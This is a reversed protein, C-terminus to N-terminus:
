KKIKTLDLFGIRNGFPDSVIACYGVAIEFPAEISRCGFSILRSYAEHANEVLFDSEGLGETNLVIETDTEPMQLGAQNERRWLLKHGLKEQYFEIGEDLNPVPVLYCDIKKFLGLQQAM